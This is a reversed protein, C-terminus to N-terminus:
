KNSPETLVIRQEFGGRKDRKQQTANQLEALCINNNEAIARVVELVDALEEILAEKSQHQMEKIAEAVEENLKNILLSTIENNEAIRFKGAFNDSTVINDRILKEKFM